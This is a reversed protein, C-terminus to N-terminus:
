GERTMRAPTVGTQGQYKGRKQAYDIEPAEDLVHFELQAIGEGPYLVAPNPNLNSIEITLHGIWGSELPTTNILIGSRAFTSKGICHGKLTSPIRLWEVSRGLVYGYAPIRFTEGAPVTIRDFMQQLYLEDNRKPDVLQCFTNKFVLFECALRLDYGASTLGYSIVGDSVGEVFPEIMQHAKVLKRISKDCLIM